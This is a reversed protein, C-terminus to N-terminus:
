HRVETVLTPLSWAGGAAIGKCMGTTSSETPVFQKGDWTWAQSSWCDGLGRGKHSASIKGEEYDTGSATVLVAHYPPKSDVVWYGDGQNYAAMWCQASVLLKSDTLRTVNLAAKDGKAELLDPCDDNGKLTARIAKHLAKTKDAALQDDGPLPKALPGMTVVPAPLPPLVAEEGKPGKRILAGQSGLRGQFEDMKLLVAAAGKDSLRWRRNGALWQIDSKRSLAALLAAVQPEALKALSTDTGVAVQGLSQGNVQMSLNLVPPQQSTEDEGQGLMLEGSVPQNAGAKRTLLVSVPQQDEDSQYGAARCTRTNDCVLEWDEHQFSLGQAPEAAPTPLSFAVIAIVAFLSNNSM